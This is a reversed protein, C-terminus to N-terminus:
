RGDIAAELEQEVRARARPRVEEVSPAMFPQPPMRRTGHELYEAGGGATVQGENEAIMRGEITSATYGTRKKVRRKATKVVDDLNAKTVRPMAREADKGIQNLDNGKRRLEIM